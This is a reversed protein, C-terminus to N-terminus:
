QRSKQVQWKTKGENQGVNDASLMVRAMLQDSNIGKVKQQVGNMVIRKM